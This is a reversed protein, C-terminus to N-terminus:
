SLIDEYFAGRQSQPHIIHIELVWLNETPCINMSSLGEKSFLAHPFDGLRHGAMKPNLQCHHEEACTSAFQYLEQGSLQETKWKTAVDKWIQECSGIIPQHPNHATNSDSSSFSFTRGFDAEHDEFIPGVDIFFIDGDNLTLSTDALDRFSKTTDSGIRFKTPHWFKSVGVKKFEEKVLAQGDLENMGASSLSAIRHTVEHCVRRAELYTALNFKDGTKETPHM